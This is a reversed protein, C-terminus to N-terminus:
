GPVSYDFTHYFSQIPILFKQLVLCTLFFEYVIYIHFICCPSFIFIELINNTCLIPPFIDSLQLTGFPPFCLQLYLLLLLYPFMVVCLDLMHNSLLATRSSRSAEPWWRAMSICPQGSTQTSVISRREKPWQMSSYSSSGSVDSMKSPQQLMSCTVTSGAPQVLLPGPQPTAPASALTSNWVQQGAAHDDDVTLRSLLIYM